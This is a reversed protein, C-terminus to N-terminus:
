WSDPCFHPLSCIFCVSFFIHLIFSFFFLIFFLCWILDLTLVSVDSDLKAKKANRQEEGDESSLQRKGRGILTMHPVKYCDPFSEPTPVTTSAPTASTAPTAPTTPNAPTAPTAPTSADTTGLGALPPCRQLFHTEVLKSFASSVESYDMSRGEAVVPFNIHSFSREFLSKGNNYEVCIGHLVM